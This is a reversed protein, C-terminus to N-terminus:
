KNLTLLLFAIFLHSINELNIIFFQYKQVFKHAIDEIFCPEYFFNPHRSKFKLNYNGTPKSGRCALYNTM